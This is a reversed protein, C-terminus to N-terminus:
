VHAYVEAAWRVEAESRPDAALLRGSDQAALFLSDAAVNARAASM